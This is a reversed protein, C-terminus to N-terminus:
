GGSLLEIDRDLAELARRLMERYDEAHATALHHLCDVRALELKRLRTAVGPDPEFSQDDPPARRTEAAQQQDEVAKSEWGRAM